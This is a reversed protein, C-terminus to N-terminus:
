PVSSFGRSPTSFAPPTRRRLALCDWVLKFTKAECCFFLMMCAAGVALWSWEAQGLATWLKGPDQDSLLIYFTLGLLALFLGGCAIGKKWHLKNM